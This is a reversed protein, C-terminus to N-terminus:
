PQTLSAVRRAMSFVVGDMIEEPDEEFYVTFYKYFNWHVNENFVTVMIHLEINKVRDRALCVHGRCIKPMRELMARREDDLPICQVLENKRLKFRKDYRLVEKVLDLPLRALLDM